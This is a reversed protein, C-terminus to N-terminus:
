RPEAQPENRASETVPAQWGLGLSKQLAIYDNSLQAQGQALSLEAQIRQRRADLADLFSATGGSYRAAAIRDSRMASVDAQELERVNGRQAGFRTLSSEADELASLVSGRYQALSEDNAARAQRIQANVRGFNLFNWSISPGGIASLSSGKFLDSASTSTFGITGLLTVQPFLQAVAQGIAANSAALQREAARIDPRRRLMAAPDGVPVLAPPMPVPSPASLETDLTGPEQGALMALQDMDEQVQGALPEVSASTQHIQARIREVDGDDATGLRRKSLTLALMQQEAALQERSLALRHQADRLSVYAQGVEAALQVQSDEYQAAAAETRARAGEIGRRTGGFLDLEWLADFGVSYLDLTYHNPIDITPAAATSGTASAAAALAPNIEDGLQSLKGTPIRAKIATGTAYGNPLLQSKQQALSARAERIRAEAAELTPSAAFAREILRTLEPDNMALWWRAPPPAPEVPAAPARHFRGAAEEVPAAHPPAKYNPGVMCGPLALLPLMASLLIRKRM